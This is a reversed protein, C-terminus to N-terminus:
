IIKKKPRGMMKIYKLYLLKKYYLVSGYENCKEVM